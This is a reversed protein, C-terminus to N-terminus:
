MEGESIESKRDSGKAIKFLELHFLDTQLANCIGNLRYKKSLIMFGLYKFCSARTRTEQELLREFLEYRPMKQKLIGVVLTCLLKVVDDYGSLGTHLLHICLIRITISISLGFALSCTGQFMAIARDAIFRRRDFPSIIDVARCLSAPM